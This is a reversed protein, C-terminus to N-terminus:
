MTRMNRNIIAQSRSQTPEANRALEKKGDDRNAGDDDRRPVAVLGNSAAGNFHSRTM